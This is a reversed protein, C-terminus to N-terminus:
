AQHAIVSCEERRIATDGVQSILHVLSHLAASASAYIFVMGSKDASTVGNVKTVFELADALSATSKCAYNGLNGIVVGLNM